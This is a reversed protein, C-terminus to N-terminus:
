YLWFVQWLELWNGDDYGASVGPWDGTRTVGGDHFSWGGVVCVCM